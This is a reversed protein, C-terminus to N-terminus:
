MPAKGYCWRGQHPRQENYAALWADLDGQFEELTRYIKKRFTVLYFESLFTKRFRECIGNAMRVQRWTTQEITLTVLMDVVEPAVRKKLIPKRRSIEELVAEGGTECLEKFRYFSDHSYGIIQCAKLVIGFQKGLDLLEM